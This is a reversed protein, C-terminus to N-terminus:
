EDSEYLIEFAEDQILNRFPMLSESRWGSASVHDTGDISVILDRFGFFRSRTWIFEAFGLRPFGSVIREVCSPPACGHIHANGGRFQVLFCALHLVFESLQASQVVWEEREDQVVIPPDEQSLDAIRVGWSTVGQNELCFHLVGDEFFLETPSLLRDQRRWIDDRRGAAQYWECLAPPLPTGLRAASQQMEVDNYGDEPGLPGYWEAIFSSLVKWREQRTKGLNLLPSSQPM